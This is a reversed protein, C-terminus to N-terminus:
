FIGKSWNLNKYFNDTANNAAGFIYSTIGCHKKIPNRNFDNPTSAKYKVVKNISATFETYSSKDSIAQIYDDLDFFNALRNRDFRQISTKNLAAIKDKNASLINSTTTKLEELDSTKILSITAARYQEQGLNYSDFFTRCVTILNEEKDGTALMPELITNYPFGNAYIEASSSIIYDAKDKLDYLVEAGAMYCADFMIFNFVNNPIGAQLDSIEMWNNDDQGFAKTQLDYELNFLNQKAFSVEPFTGPAPLWGTGHSWLILGYSEAPYKRVSEEIVKKLVASSASNHNEYTTITEFDFSTTGDKVKKKLEMLRPSENPLDIYVIVNGNKMINNNANAAAVMENIDTQSNYSLSNDALMYILITKPKSEPPDIQHEGDCCSTIVFCCFTILILYFNTLLKM